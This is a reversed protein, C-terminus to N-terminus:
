YNRIRKKANLIGENKFKAFLFKLQKVTYKVKYANFGSEWILGYKITTGVEVTLTQPTKKIITVNGEKGKILSRALKGTRIALKKKTGEGDLFNENAYANFLVEIQKATLDFLKSINIKLLEVDNIDSM